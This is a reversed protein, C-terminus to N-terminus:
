TIEYERRSIHEFANKKEKPFHNQTPQDVFDCSYEPICILKYILMLPILHQHQCYFLIAGYRSISLISTRNRAQTNTHTLYHYM